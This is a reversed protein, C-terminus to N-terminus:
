RQKNLESSSKEVDNNPKAGGGSQINMNTFADDPIEDRYRDYHSNMFKQANQLPNTFGAFAKKYLAAVKKKNVNSDAKLNLSEMCTSNQNNDVVNIYAMKLLITNLYDKTQFNAEVNQLTSAKNWFSKATTLNGVNEKDEEFANFCFSFVDRYFIDREKKDAPEELILKSLDRIFGMGVERTWPVGDAKTRSKSKSKSRSKTRLKSKKSKHKLSRTSIDIILCLCSIIIFSLAILKFNIIKM